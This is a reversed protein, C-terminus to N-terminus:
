EAVAETDVAGHRGRLTVRANLRGALTEALREQYVTQGRSEDLVAEMDEVTLFERPEVIVEYYDWPGHPCRGHIMSRHKVNM